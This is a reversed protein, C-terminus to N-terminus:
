VNYSIKEFLRMFMGVGWVTVSVKVPSSWFDHAVLIIKMDFLLHACKSLSLCSHKIFLVYRLYSVPDFGHICGKKELTLNWKWFFDIFENMRIMRCKYIGEILKHSQEYPVNLDSLLSLGFLLKRTFIYLWLPRFDRWVVVLVTLM